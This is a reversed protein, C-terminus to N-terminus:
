IIAMRKDMAASFGLTTHTGCFLQGKHTNLDYMTAMLAAFGKNHETSDSMHTDILQDYLDAASMGDVVALIEFVLNCQEAIDQTKEGCIPFFPCPYPLMM